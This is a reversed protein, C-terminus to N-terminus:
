DAIAEEAFAAYAVAQELREVSLLARRQHDYHHETSGDGTAPNGGAYVPYEKTAEVRDDQLQEIYLKSIALDRSGEAYRGADVKKQGTFTLRIAKVELIGCRSLRGFLKTINNGTIERDNPVAENRYIKIQHIAAERTCKRVEMYSTIAEELFIFAEAEKAEKEAEDFSEFNELYITRLAFLHPVGQYKPRPM